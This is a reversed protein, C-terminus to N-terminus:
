KLKCLSIVIRLPNLFFQNDCGRQKQTNSIIIMFDEFSMENIFLQPIRMFRMQHQLVKIKLEKHSFKSAQIM